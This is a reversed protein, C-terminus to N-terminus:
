IVPMCKLASIIGPTDGTDSGQGGGLPRAIPPHLRLPTNVDYTHTHGVFMLRSCDCRLAAGRTKLPESAVRGMLQKHPLFIDLLQALPPLHWSYVKSVGLVQSVKRFM